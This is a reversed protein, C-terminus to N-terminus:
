KLERILNELEEQLKEKTSKFYDEWDEINSITIFTESQKIFTIQDEIIKIQHRLKTIALRLLDKETVTESKSKFYNGRELDELIEAVKKLDNSDYAQKLEIFTKHADVQFEDSVKDPHCMVTAKRFKKKIEVKQQDNLEYIKKEKDSDFQEQYQKEDQDAEEYKHKDAKFKIKRLSLIELIIKGLELSHRYQFEALLKELEIRENDYSNLQNELNKIELNLAIIEPDSWILLQNNKSIFDAINRIAESYKQETLNIIIDNIDSNFSYTKLKSLEKALDEIDGLVIYNKLIELRKIIKSLPFLEEQLSNPYEQKIINHFEAIFQGALCTDDTTIIVNEFNNEAKYSWNYSGTIVTHFDIICFKNHMLETDGNGIWYVKSKNINLRQFNISSNQNIKDNSIILSVSCGSIAKKLLQDFLNKNTFWAVAIFISNEAKGVEFQIRDAINEFIAETQM